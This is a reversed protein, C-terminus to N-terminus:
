IYHLKNTTNLENSLRDYDLLNSDSFKKISISDLKYLFEKSSDM